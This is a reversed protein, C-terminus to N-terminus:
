PVLVLVNYAADINGAHWILWRNSPCDGSGTWYLLVFSAGEGVPTVFLLANPNFNAHPHDVYTFAGEFGCENTGAAIQFAATPTGVGAGTVKIRGNRIELATSSNTAAHGEAVVGVGGIADTRGWVGIAPGSTATTSGLVGV